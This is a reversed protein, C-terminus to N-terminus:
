RLPAMCEVGDHMDILMKTNNVALARSTSFKSMNPKHACLNYMYTPTKMFRGIESTCRKISQLSVILGPLSQPIDFAKNGSILGFYM